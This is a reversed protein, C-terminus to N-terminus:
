LVPYSKQLRRSVEPVLGSRTYEHQLIFGVHPYGIKSLATLKAKLGEHVYPVASGKPLKVLPFTM